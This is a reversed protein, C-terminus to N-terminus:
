PHDYFLNANFFCLLYNSKLYTKFEPEPIKEEIFRKKPNHNLDSWRGSGLLWIKREM